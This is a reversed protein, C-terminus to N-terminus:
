TAQFRARWPHSPALLADLAPGVHGSGAMMVAALALNSSMMPRAFGGRALVPLTPMGTGGFLVLDADSVDLTALMEEVRASTLRYIGRTDLLDVPLGARAAISIGYHAWYRAGEAQLWQPYPTVWAIRKVGWHAFVQRLASTSTHVPYGAQDSMRALDDIERGPEFLYYCTCAFGASVLPATDFSALGAPLADTYDILRQRSDSATSVLRSTLVTGSLLAGMEPEVTTNAMPTLIGRVPGYEPTERPHTPM